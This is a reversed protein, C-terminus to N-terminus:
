GVRMQAIFAILGIGSLGDKQNLLTPDELIKGCIVTVTIKYLTKTYDKVVGAGTLYEEAAMRYGTLVMDLDNGDVKLFQKLEDLNM